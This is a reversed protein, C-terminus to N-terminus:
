GLLTWFDRVVNFNDYILQSDFASVHMEAFPTSGEALTIDNRVPWGGLTNFPAYGSTDSGDGGLMFRVLLKAAASHESGEVIYLSNIAPIGTTPYLNVAGLVWGNDANKRIKSSSCFGVPPNAQGATGVSEAVEDSSSTFVPENDHLRKLFEYGANECGDSLTIDQGYLEKYAAALKDPTEGVCFGTIWSGWSTDDLPNQMVIRGKWQEETLQWINTIPSGEPHAETNYFLQTLEIYLPTQTETYTPDMVAEIDDPLYTYFTGASVYENYLSGDLDKCHIVDAVHQGADYERTVKEILENQSIDFPECVVGPYKANFADAVKTCRSSISYLVVKGEKKAAEYLEAETEDTILIGSAEEWGTPAADVPASAAGGTSEAAGSSAAADNGGGCGAAAFTMVLALAAALWRKKQFM